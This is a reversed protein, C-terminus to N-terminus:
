NGAIIKFGESHDLAAQHDPIAKKKTPREKTGKRLGVCHEERKHREVLERRGEGADVAGDKVARRTLKAAQGADAARWARQEMSGTWSPVALRKATARPPTSPPLGRAHAPHM